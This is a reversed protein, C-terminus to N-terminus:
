ILYEDSAIEWFEVRDNYMNKTAASSESGNWNPVHSFDDDYEVSHNM